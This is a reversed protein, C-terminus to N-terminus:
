AEEDPEPLRLLPERLGMELRLRLLVQSEGEQTRSEKQVFILRPNIFSGSQGLRQLFVTVDLESRAFGELLVVGSREIGINALKVGAPLDEELEKLTQLVGHREVTMARLDNLEQLVTGVRAAVQASRNAQVKQLSVQHRLQEVRAELRMVDAFFLFLGAGVVGALAMGLRWKDKATAPQLEEARLLSEFPLSAGLHQDLSAPDEGKFQVFELDVWSETLAARYPAVDLSSSNMMAWAPEAPSLIDLREAVTQGAMALPFVQWDCLQKGQWVGAFLGSSTEWLVIGPRPDRPVRLEPVSVDMIRGSGQPLREQVHSIVGRPLAALGREAESIPWTAVHYASLDEPLSEEALLRLLSELEKGSVGESRIRRLFVLGPALDLCVGPGGTPQQGPLSSELVPEGAGDVRVHRCSLAGRHPMLARMVTGLMEDGRSM